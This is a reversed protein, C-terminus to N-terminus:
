VCRTTFFHGVKNFFTRCPPDSSLHESKHYLLKNFFIFFFPSM